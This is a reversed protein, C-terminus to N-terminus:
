KFDSQAYIYSSNDRKVAMTRSKYILMQAEVLRVLLLKFKNKDVLCLGNCKFISFINIEDFSFSNFKDFRLVKFM